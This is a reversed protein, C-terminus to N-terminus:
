EGTPAEPLIAGTANAKKVSRYIMVGVIGVLLYPMSVFLYISQNWARAEQAPDYQQDGDVSTSPIADRCNPCALVSVPLSLVCTLALTALFLTFRKM